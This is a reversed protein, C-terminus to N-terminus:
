SQTGSVIVESSDVDGALYVTESTQPEFVSFDVDDIRTIMESWPVVNRILFRLIDQYDKYDEIKCEIVQELADDVTLLIQDNTYVFMGEYYKERLVFSVLVLIGEEIKGIYDLISVKIEM